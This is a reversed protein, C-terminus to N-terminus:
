RKLLPALTQAKRLASAPPAPARSARQYANLALSLHLDGLNELATAYDPRARLAALLAARAEDFREARAYLVALNNHPEPLEPFDQTLLLLTQIAEDTQNRGAQIRSLLLRMQPDRSHGLLREQALAQASDWQQNAIAREVDDYVDARSSWSLLLLVWLAGLRFLTWGPRPAMRPWIVPPSM